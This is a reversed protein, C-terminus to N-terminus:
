PSTPRSRGALLGGILTCLPMGVLVSLAFVRQPIRYGADTQFSRTLWPGGWWVTLPLIAIVAVVLMASSLRGGMRAAIWGTVAAGVCWIMQLGGGYWLWFMSHDLTPWRHTAAGYLWWTGQVWTIVVAWVLIWTRAALLMHEHIETLVEGTFAILVQRWYWSRSRGHCFREELDGILSERRATAPLGLLLWTALRPPKRETM